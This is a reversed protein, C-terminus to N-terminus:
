QGDKQKIIKLVEDIGAIALQLEQRFFELKAVFERAEGPQFPFDYIKKNPM